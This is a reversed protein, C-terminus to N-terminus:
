KANTPEAGLVMALERRSGPRTTRVSLITSATRGSNVALASNTRSATLTSSIAISTALTSATPRTFTRRTLNSSNRFVVYQAQASTGAALVLVIGVLIARNM